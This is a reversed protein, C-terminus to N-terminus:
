CVGKSMSFTGYLRESTGAGCSSAGVSYPTISLVAKCSVSKTGTVDWAGLSDANLRCSILPSLSSGVGSVPDSWDGGIELSSGSCTIGDRCAELTKLVLVVIVASVFVVSTGSGTAGGRGGRKGLLGGSEGGFVVGEILRFGKLLLADVLKEGDDCLEVVGPWEDVDESSVLEVVGVDKVRAFM